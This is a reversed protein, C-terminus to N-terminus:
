TLIRTNRPQNQLNEPKLDRIIEQAGFNTVNQHLFAQIKHKEHTTTHTRQGIDRVSISQSFKM